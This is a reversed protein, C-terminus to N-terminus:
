NAEIRGGGESTGRARQALWGLGLAGIVPAVSKVVNLAASDNGDGQLSELIEDEEREAEELESLMDSASYRTVVTDALEILQKRQDASMQSGAPEWDEGGAAEAAALRRAWADPDRGLRGYEDPSLRLFQLLPTSDHLQAFVAASSKRAAGLSGNGSVPVVSGDAAVRISFSGGRRSTM